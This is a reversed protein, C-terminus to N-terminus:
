DYVHLSNIDSFVENLHFTHEGVTDTIATDSNAAADVQEEEREVCINNYMMFHCHKM